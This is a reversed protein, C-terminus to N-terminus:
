WQAMNKYVHTFIPLLDIAKASLDENASKSTFFLFKRAHTYRNNAKWNATVAPTM